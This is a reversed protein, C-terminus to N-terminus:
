CGGTKKLLEMYTEPSSIYVAGLVAMPVALIFILLLSIVSSLFRKGSLIGRIILNAGIFGFFLLYLYGLLGVTMVATQLFANNQVFGFLLTYMGFAAAALYGTIEPPHLEYIGRPAPVNQRLKKMILLNLQYILFGQLAGSAIISTVLLRGLFSFSLLEEPYEIGARGFSESIILRYEEVEEHFDIGTLSAMFILRIVNVLIATFMVAAMTKVSDSKRHLCTGFVLGIVAYMGANIAQAPTGLLFSILCMAAFVPLGSVTGYKAAYIALPLPFVYVLIEEAMGATQRNLFLLVGFVATILAGQTLKLTDKSM